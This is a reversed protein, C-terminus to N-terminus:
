CIEPSRSSSCRGLWACGAKCTAATWKKERDRHMNTTNALSDRELAAKSSSEHMATAGVLCLGPRLTIYADSVLHSLRGIVGM